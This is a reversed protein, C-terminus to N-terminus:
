LSFHVSLLFDEIDPIIDHYNQLHLFHGTNEYIIIKRDKVDKFLTFFDHNDEKQLILIPVSFTMLPLSYYDYLITSIYFNVVNDEDASKADNMVEKVVNKSTYFLRSSFFEKLWADYGRKYIEKYLSLVNLNHRKIYTCDIFILGKVNRNRAYVESMIRCGASHAIIIVDDGLREIEDSIEKGMSIVDKDEKELNVNVIKYKHHFHEILFRFQHYSCALGHIFLLTVRKRLELKPSTVYFEM